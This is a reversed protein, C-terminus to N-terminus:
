SILSPFLSALATTIYKNGYFESLVIYICLGGLFLYFIQKTSNDM